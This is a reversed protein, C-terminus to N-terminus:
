IISCIGSSVYTTDLVTWSTIFTRTTKSIQIVETDPSYIGDLFRCTVDDRTEICAGRYDDESFKKFGKSTDVLYNIPAEEIIKMKKRNTDAFLKVSEFTECFYVANDPQATAFYTPSTILAISFLLKAIKNM